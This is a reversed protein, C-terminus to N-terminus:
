DQMKLKFLELEKNDNIFYVNPMKETVNLKKFRGKAKYYGENLIFNNVKEKFIIIVNEAKKGEWIAEQISPATYKQNGKIDWTKGLFQIDPRKEGEKGGKEPLFEVRHSLDALIKGGKKETEGGFGKAFQHSKHYVAFGGTNENFYAKTYISTDYNDYLRKSEQIYNSSNALKDNLIDQIRDQVKRYPHKPPFIVEQKASNFRFIETTAKEGKQMSEVLNSQEYKDKRVQVVTCRCRWGNPPYNQEWFPSNVPLTIRNLVAHNERVREDGATRYQLNYRDGDAIYQQWKAAMQSTSVAHLYEAKLYNKNYANHKKEVERYFKDFSKITGKEDLLMASVEKISVYTKCGSFVFVDNKLKRMMEDPVKTAIPQIAHTLIRNTENVMAMIPKDEIMEDTFQKKDHLYSIAKKWMERSFEPVDDNAM